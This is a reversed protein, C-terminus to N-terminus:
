HLRVRPDLVSYMLDVILNLSVFILATITVSAQVLPFDKAYVAQILLRGM